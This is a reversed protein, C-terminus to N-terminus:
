AIFVLLPTELSVTKEKPFPKHYQEATMSRPSTCRPLRLRLGQVAPVPAAFERGDGLRLGGAELLTSYDLEYLLAYGRIADPTPANQLPQLM